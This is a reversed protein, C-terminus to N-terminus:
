RSGPPPESAFFRLAEPGGALAALWSGFLSGPAAHTLDHAESIAAALGQGDVVARGASAARMAAVTVAANLFAVAVGLEDVVARRGTGLTEITARLDNHVLARSAPDALDVRTRRAAPLDWGAVAPWLGHFHFLLRALRWRLGLRLGRAEGSAAQLGGAAVAFLFGRALLRSLAAPRRRAVPKATAAAHRGTLEIYEAFRDPALRLVRWRTWDDLTDAMRAANERLDPSGDPGIRDLMQRLVSRVTSLAGEEIPHGAVLELTATREPYAKLQERRLGGLEAMQSTLPLGANEVITPCCFSATLVASGDSPHFRFPFLRCALPKRDAGLEEHIRCRNGPSLFGCAGDARRRIRSLGRATAETVDRTAGEPTDATERFLRAFAPSRLAEAEDPTLAVDFTRCCRACSRCSFRQESDFRLAGVARTYSASRAPLTEASSACSRAAM